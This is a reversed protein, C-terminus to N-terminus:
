LKLGGKPISKPSSLKADGMGFSGIDTFVRYKVPV